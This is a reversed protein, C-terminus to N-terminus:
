KEMQQQINEVFAEEVDAFEAIQATTFSGSQLMKKVMLLKQQQVGEEKGERYRLDKTIDITVSMTQEEKIIQSQIEEGRLLSLIELQRLKITFAEQNGQYATHLKFLIRRILSTKDKDHGALITFVWHAPDQSELFVEPMLDRIDQIKVNYHLDPDVILGKMSLKTKGLYVVLGFVPKHYKLRLMGHYCLMRNAMQPDNGSQWEIHIVLVSGDKLTVEAISDSEKEVMTQQMKPVLPTISAVKLNFLVELLREYAHGFLEKVVRDYNNAM